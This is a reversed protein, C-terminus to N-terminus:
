AKAYPHSILKSAKLHLARQRNREIRAREADTLTSKTSESSSGASM